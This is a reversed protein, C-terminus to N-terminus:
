IKWESINCGTRITTLLFIYNETLVLDVSKDPMDKMKELCDGLILTEM